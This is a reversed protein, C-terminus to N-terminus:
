CTVKKEGAAIHLKSMDQVAPIHIVNPQVLYNHFQMASKYLICMLSPALSPTALPAKLLQPFLPSDSVVLRTLYGVPSDIARVPLLYAYM